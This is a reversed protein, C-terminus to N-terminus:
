HVSIHGLFDMKGLPVGNHRLIEYAVMFYFNPLQQQSVYDAGLIYKGELWPLKVQATEAGALDAPKYSDIYDLM